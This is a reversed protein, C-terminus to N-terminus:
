VYMSEYSPEEVIYFNGIRFVESRATVQAHGCTINRGQISLYEMKNASLTFNLFDFRESSNSPAGITVNLDPSDITIGDVVDYRAIRTDNVFWDITGSTGFNVADCTLTLVGPCQEGSLQLSGISSTLNPRCLVSLPVFFIIICKLYYYM